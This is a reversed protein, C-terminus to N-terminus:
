DEGRAMFPKCLHYHFSLGQESTAVLTIVAQVLPPAASTLSRRVDQDGDATASGSASHHPPGPAGAVWGVEEM